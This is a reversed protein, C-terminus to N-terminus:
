NLFILRLTPVYGNDSFESAKPDLLHDFTFITELTRMLDIHLVLVKHNFRILLPDLLDKHIQLRISQLERSFPAFYLDYTLEDLSIAVWAFLLGLTFGLNLPDKLLRKRRSALLRVLRIIFLRM